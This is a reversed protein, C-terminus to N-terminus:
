NLPSLYLQHTAHRAGTCYAARGLSKYYEDRWLQEHMTLELASNDGFALAQCINGAV